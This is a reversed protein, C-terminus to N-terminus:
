DQKIILPLHVKIYKYAQTTFDWIPGSTNGCDGIAVVKWYYKKDYSLQGLAYNSSTTNGELRPPNITGFFVDYSTAGPVDEWDLDASIPVNTESNGPSVWSPVDPAWCATTFEWVPGNSSGCANRANVKWYYHTSSKLPALDLNSSTTNGQLRPPNTTGFFVDYSTARAADDWNLDRDRVVGSAGNAPSPFSPEAPFDATECIWYYAYINWWDIYGTNWWACDYAWIRWSQNVLEGNYDTIERSRFEIDNDFEPDDDLGEDDNHGWRNWVIKMNSMYSPGIFVVLDGVHQHVIRASYVIRSITAGAPASSIDIESSGWSGGGICVKQDIGYDEIQIEYPNVGFVFHEGMPAAVTNSDPASGSLKIARAIVHVSLGLRSLVLQEGERLELKCIGVGCSYGMRLLLAVDQEDRIVVEVEVIPEQQVDGAGVMRLSPPSALQSRLSENASVRGHGHLLSLMMTIGVATIGLKSFRRSHSHVGLCKTKM